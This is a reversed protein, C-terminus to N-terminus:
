SKTTIRFYGARQLQNLINQADSLTWKSADENSVLIPNMYCTSLNLLQTQKLKSSVYILYAGYEEAYSSIKNAFTINDGNLNDYTYADMANTLNINFYASSINVNEYLQKMNIVDKTSLELGEINMKTVKLTNFTGMKFSLKDGNLVDSSINISSSLSYSGISLQLLSNQLVSTSLETVESSGGSVDKWDKDYYSIKGDHCWLVNKNKPEKATLIPKLYKTEM